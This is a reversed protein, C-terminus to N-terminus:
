YHLVKRLLWLGWVTLIVNGLWVSYAPLAGRKAGDVGYTLLPYYVVLIPLFCAFFSTLVDSNRLRIAMPAGVMVFCLCSFGAAWRRYPETQLRYLYTKDDQYAQSQVTWEKGALAEFDGTLMQYAATAALEQEAREIKIKQSAIKDPIVRLPLWAPVQLDKSTRSADELPISREFEGPWRALGRGGGLDATANRFTVTLTNQAPDSRLEAEEARITTTPSDANGQFTIIPLILKRGEVSKVVVSFQGTSYSRQTRLMGYAIEEVANLVVRRVGDRGWSVAVDNLWVSVLSLVFALGFAPWLIGMPSIGLSKIAVVENAGSMRGYVSCAAFLLTGPVTFRLADPLVYPILLVIQAPGLGQNTAEKVLGILLMFLTLAALAISFVKLLELSVYRPLIRM